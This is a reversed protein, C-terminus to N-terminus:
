SGQVNENEYILSTKTVATTALAPALFVGAFPIMLILTFLAGSILTFWATKRAKSFSQKLSYGKIEFYYDRLAFGQFYAQILLIVPLFVAAAGPILSLLYFPITLLLEFFIARLNVLIGRIINRLFIKAGQNDIGHGQIIFVKEALISMVPGAVLLIIVRLFFLFIIASFLFSFFGSLFALPGNLFSFWTLNFGGMWTSIKQSTTVSINWAYYLLFIEIAIGLMGPILFFLYLSNKAIYFPATLFEKLLTILLKARKM